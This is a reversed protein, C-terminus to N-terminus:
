TITQGQQSASKAKCSDCNRCCTFLMVLGLVGCIGVVVYVVTELASGAGFIVSVLNWDFLGVLGWNIAGVVVLLHIIWKLVKM